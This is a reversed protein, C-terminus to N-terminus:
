LPFNNTSAWSKPPENTPESNTLWNTCLLTAPHPSKVLPPSLVLLVVLPLHGKDGRRRKEGLACIRSSARFFFDPKSLEKSFSDDTKLAVCTVLSRTVPPLDSPPLLRGRRKNIAPPPIPPRTKARAAFFLPMSTLTKSRSALAILPSPCYRPGIWIWLLASAARSATSWAAASSIM